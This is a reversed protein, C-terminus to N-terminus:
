RNSVSIMETRVNAVRQSKVGSKRRLASPAMQGSRRSWAHDLCQTSLFGSGSSTPWKIISGSPISGAATSSPGAHWIGHMFVMFRNRKPRARITRKGNWAKPKPSIKLISVVPVSYQPSKSKVFNLGLLLTSRQIRTTLALSSVTESVGLKAAPVLKGIVPFVYRVVAVAAAKM